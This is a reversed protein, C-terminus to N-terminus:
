STMATGARSRSCTTRAPTPSTSSWPCDLWASRAAPGASTSPTMPPVASSGTDASSDALTGGATAALDIAIRQVDSGSLDNITITDAGALARIQFREVDEAFVQQLGDRTFAIGGGSFALGIADKSKSTTLRVTDIGDYGDVQDYGDGASWVALDNGTGLDVKDDGGGGIITDDGSDSGLHDNGASGTIRDNGAGGNMSLRVVGAALKSANMVDNGDASDINLDDTSDANAITVLAPLGTISLRGSALATITDDGDTGNVDVSDGAADPVGPTSGALDIAVQKVDTGSLDNIKIDDGAGRARLEIREVNDLLAGGWGDSLRAWPGNASLEFNGVVNSTFRLTDVGAGGQVTDDGDDRNWVFVDNGGGMWVLDNGLGGIIIDNGAGGKLTDDNITGNITAM